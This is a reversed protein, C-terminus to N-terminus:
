TIQNGFNKWALLKSKDEFGPLVILREREADTVIKADGHDEGLKRAQLKLVHEDESSGHYHGNTTYLHLM